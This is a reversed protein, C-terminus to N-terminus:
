MVKASSHMCSEFFTRFPLFFASFLFIMFILFSFLLFFAESCILCQVESFSIVKGKAEWERREEEWKRRDGLGRELSIASKLTSNFINKNSHLLEICMQM